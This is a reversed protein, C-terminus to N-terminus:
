EVDSGEVLFLSMISNIKSIQFRGYWSFLYKSYKKRTKKGFKFTMLQTVQVEQGKIKMCNFIYVLYSDIIVDFREVGIFDIFKTKTDGVLIIPAQVNCDDLKVEDLNNVVEIIEEKITEVIKVELNKEIIPDESIEEVIKIKPEEEIVLGENIEEFIEINKEKVEVYDELVINVEVHLEEKLPPTYPEEFLKLTFNKALLLRTNCVVLNKKLEFSLIQYYADKEDKAM